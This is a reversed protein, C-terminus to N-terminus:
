PTWTAAPEDAVFAGAVFPRGGLSSQTRDLVEIRTPPDLLHVYGTDMNVAPTLGAAATRTLLEDFGRWDIEAGDFPLLVAAMGTIERGPRLLDLPSAAPVSSKRGAGATGSSQCSM